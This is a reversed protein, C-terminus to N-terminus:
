SDNGQPVSLSRPHLRSIGHIRPHWEHPRRLSGPWFSAMSKFARAFFTAPGTLATQNPLPMPTSFIPQWVHLNSRSLWRASENAGAAKGGTKRATRLLLIAASSSMSSWTEEACASLASLARCAYAVLFCVSRSASSSKGDLSSCTHSTTPVLTMCGSFFSLGWRM